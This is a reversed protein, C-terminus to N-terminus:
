ITRYSSVIGLNNLVEMVHRKVGSVVIFVGLAKPFWSAKVAAISRVVIVTLMIVRKPIM